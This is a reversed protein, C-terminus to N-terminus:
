YLRGCTGAGENTALGHHYLTRRSQAGYSGDDQIGHSRQAKALADRTKAGFDGDAVLQAGIINWYCNNLTEQLIRVATNNYNGQRLACELTYGPEGTERWVPVRASVSGYINGADRYAFSNCTPLAAQAAGAPAVALGLGLAAALVAGSLRSRFFKV